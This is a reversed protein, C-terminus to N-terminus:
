RPQHIMIYIKVKPLTESIRKQMSPHFIYYPSAEGTIIKSKQLKKVFLMSFSTPFHARYWYGRKTYNNDFFIFKREFPPYFAHISVFIDIYRRVEV